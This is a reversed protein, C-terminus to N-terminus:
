RSLELPNNKTKSSIEYCRSSNKRFFKLKESCIARVNGSKGYAIELLDRIKKTQSSQIKSQCTQIIM